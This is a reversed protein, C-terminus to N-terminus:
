KEWKIEASLDTTIRGWKGDLKVRASGDKFATGADYLFPIVTEASTNIYGCKDDKTVCALGESFSMACEFQPEIVVENKTNIYGFLGEKEYCALGERFLFIEDYVPPIEEKGMLNKIGWKGGKSFKTWEEPAGPETPRPAKQPRADQAKQQGKQQPKQTHEASDAEDPRFTLGLATIARKVDELSKKGFNQIKFMERERRSVIAAVTKVGGAVLASLTKEHLKLEEVPKELLEPAGQPIYVEREKQAPGRHHRRRFNKAM